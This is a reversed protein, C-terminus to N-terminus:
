LARGLFLRLTWSILSLAVAATVMVILPQELNRCGLPKGLAASALLWSIVVVTAPALLTGAPSARWAQDLRGRTFWSFATTMGCTPCRQGTLAMFTCPPLGLQTHTGFGRPDPELWRAFGLLMGLVLALGLLDRRTRGRLRSRESPQPIM